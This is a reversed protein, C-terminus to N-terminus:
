LFTRPGFSQFIPNRNVIRTRKVRIVKAAPHFALKVKMSTHRQKREGKARRKKGEKKRGEERKRGSEQSSGTLTKRRKNARYQYTEGKM